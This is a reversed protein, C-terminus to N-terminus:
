NMERNSFFFHYEKFWYNYIHTLLLSNHITYVKGGFGIVPGQDISNVLDAFFIINITGMPQGMGHLNTYKCLFSYWSLSMQIISINFVDNKSSVKVIDIIPLIEVSFITIIGDSYQFLKM